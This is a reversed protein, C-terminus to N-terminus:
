DNKKSKIFKVANVISEAIFWVLLFLSITIDIYDWIEKEFTIKYFPNFLFSLSVFIIAPIYNRNKFEIFALVFFLVFCEIRLFKYYGSPQIFYYALFLMSVLVAKIFIRTWFM